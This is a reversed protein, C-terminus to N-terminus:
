QPEATRSSPNSAPRNIEAVPTTFGRGCSVARLSPNAVLNPRLWVWSGPDQWVPDIDTAVLVNIHFEDCFNDLNLKRAASPSNFVSAFTPFVKRCADRDGGFDTACFADGVVAQRASFLHIMTVEDRVPNYQIFATSPTVRNLQTLGERMWYTREGFKLGRPGLFLSIRPGLVGADALPAYIRLAVVQYASGALGLVLTFALWFRIRRGGVKALATGGGPSFLEHVVPAAWILLVFQAVLIGRFGLDNGGNTSSRLYSMALLCVIFVTWMMRRQRSLSSRNQVDRRWCLELVVAFFGFELVYVIILVPLQALNLLLWHHLGFEELWTQVLPFDRIALVVFHEGGDSSLGPDIRKSLLDILFPWSLVLSLAGSAIWTAFTKIERHSLTRLALFIAALAFSFTVYVSLGAASAFALGSIVAAWVRQDASSAEDITSIILLGAMCATLSAVHHPVWLLSGIWSTVQNPNWWEMDAAFGHFYYSTAACPLLDLGTISLLGIGIVSTSRLSKKVGLVYKLFLPITSALGVGSWFVSANLCGKAGLGFLRVPLACVVYWYYFYRLVPPEGLGYFPNRPPVGYRAAAEVLPIRVSYDFAIYNVYLRHGIQLDALSLQVVVFWALTMCLLIWTSRRVRSLLPRCPTLQRAIIALSILALLLFIGITVRYSFLRTLLVALIPTVAISFAASFATKEAASASRMGFANSALGLLYGPPLLFLALAFTALTTQVLDAVMFNQM